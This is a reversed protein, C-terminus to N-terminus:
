YWKIREDKPASGALCDHNSSAHMSFGAAAKRAIQRPDYTRTNVHEIDLRHAMGEADQYEIRADPFVLKGDVMPVDHERALEDKPRGNRKNMPSFIRKKLEHDLVVRKVRGGAAEIKEAERKYAPYVEIDHAVERARSLGSRNRTQGTWYYQKEGPARESRLHRLGEPTLTVVRINMLAHRDILNKSRLSHITKCGLDDERIV